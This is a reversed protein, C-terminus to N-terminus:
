RVQNHNCIKHCPPFRFHFASLSKRVRPAPSQVCDKVTECHNRFDEVHDKKRSAGHCAIFKVRLGCKAARIVAEAVIRFSVTTKGLWNCRLFFIDAGAVAMAREGVFFKYLHQMGERKM